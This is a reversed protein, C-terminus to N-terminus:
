RTSKMRLAKRYKRLDRETSAADLQLKYQESQIFHPFSDNEMLSYIKKTAEVFCSPSSQRVSQSIIERTYFDLNVTRIFSKFEQCALWFDLNEECFESKLFEWFARQRSKVCSFMFKQSLFTELSEGLQNAENTEERCIKMWLLPSQILDHIRSKWANHIRNTNQIDLPTRSLGDM